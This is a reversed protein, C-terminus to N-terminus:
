AGTEELHRVLHDLYGDFTFETHVRDWGGQGLRTALDRDRLLRGLAAAFGDVDREPLLCGNRGDELWDPVGGTAFAVVPRAHHMAELGIMGFPEPWRVPVALVRAGAYYAGLKENPVWGAFRVRDAVGLARAQEELKGRANGDGVVTASWEGPLLCLADLLLDVGKGRILQGVYLVHPEEAVPTPDLRPRRVVPPLIHVRDPPFGNMELERRMFASGVLVRELVHNRRMEAFHEGLGRVQFGLRGRARDRELWALDLWCRWGAPHECVHANHVFYKHRRPCCLDHDHVMRLRPITAGDGSEPLRPVKHFYLRDAGWRKALSDLPEGGDAGVERCPAHGDFLAGYREPERPSKEGWALFCEHGRDRLGAVTDAINQEVGGFWGLKENVLLIRM